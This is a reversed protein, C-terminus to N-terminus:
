DTTPQSPPPWDGALWADVLHVRPDGPWTARALTARVQAIQRLREADRRREVVARAFRLLPLDTAEVVIAAEAWALMRARMLADGLVDAAIVAEAAHTMGGSPLSSM